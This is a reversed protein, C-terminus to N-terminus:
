ICISHTVKNDVEKSIETSPLVEVNKAFTNEEDYYTINGVNIKGILNHASRESIPYVAALFM